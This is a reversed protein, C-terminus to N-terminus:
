LRTWTGNVVGWGPDWEAQAVSTTPKVRNQALRRRLVERQAEVSRVYADWRSLRETMEEEWHTAQATIDKEWQRLARSRSVTMLSAGVVVVSIVIDFIM